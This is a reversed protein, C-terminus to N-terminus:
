IYFHNKYVFFKCTGNVVCLSTNFLSSNETLIHLSFLKENVKGIKSKCDVCCSITILTADVFNIGTKRIRSHCNNKEFCYTWIDSCSIWLKISSENIWAFQVNKACSHMFHTCSGVNQVSVVSWFQLSLELLISYLLLSKDISDLFSLAICLLMWSSLVSWSTCYLFIHWCLFIAFCLNYKLFM